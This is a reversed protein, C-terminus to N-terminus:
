VDVMIQSHGTLLRALSMNGVSCAYHLPSKGKSNQANVEAYFNLLTTVINANGSLVAWHLPTEDDENKMNVNAIM